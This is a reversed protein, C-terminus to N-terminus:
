GDQQMQETSAVQLSQTWTLNGLTSTFTTGLFHIKVKMLYKTQNIIKQKKLTKIQFSYINKEKKFIGGQNKKYL